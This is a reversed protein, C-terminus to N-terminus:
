SPFRFVAPMNPHSIPAEIAIKVFHIINSIINGIHTSDSLIAIYVSVQPNKLAYVALLM